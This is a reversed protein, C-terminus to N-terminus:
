LNDANAIDEAFVAEVLIDFLESGNEIQYQCIVCIAEFCTGFRAPSHRFRGSLINFRKTLNNFTEHRTLARSKFIKVKKLDHANFTSVVNTHGVYGQDGIAKKNTSELKEKLGYEKFVKVDNMGAKFPGNMWVVRPESLSIGIEYNIGAKNYKHSFYEPDQSWEIHKPEEIWCHTGDVSIAWIDNGFNDAPWTIKEAKLAQIKELYFWVWERGVKHSISWPGERDIEKPYCKLHNLAMLFYKSNLKNDHIQAEPTFTTQLDEWLITCVTPSSGYYNVFRRINTEIKSKRIRAKSYYVSLGLEMMENRTLVQRLGPQLEEDDEDIEPFGDSDSDELM